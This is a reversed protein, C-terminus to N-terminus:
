GLAKAGISTKKLAVMLATAAVVGVLVAGATVFFTRM